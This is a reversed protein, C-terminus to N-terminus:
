CICVIRLVMYHRLDKTNSGYIIIIIIFGEKSTFKLGNLLNHFSDPM